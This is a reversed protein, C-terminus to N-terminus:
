VRHDQRLLTERARIAVLGASLVLVLAMAVFASAPSVFHYLSSLLLPGLAAGLGLSFSWMGIFAGRSSEPALDMAYTQATTLSFAEGIGLLVVACAVFLYVDGVSLAVAAACSCLLGPVLAHKRGWKDAIVGAPLAFFFTILAGLSLLFGVAAADGGLADPVHVPILTQVVGAQSMSFAITALSLVVFAPDKFPEAREKLTPKPEDSHSAPRDPKTERVMFLVVIVIVIKSVGNLLFVSSLGFVSALIGGAAPGAVFGLRTSMQRVALVRGRTENRTVDSLLVNSSTAWMAVGIQGIIELLFFTAYDGTFFQGVNTAGRITCSLIVLPKRGFKDTLFGTLPGAFIRPVANSALLLGVLFVNGTVAFAFLPRGLNQAGTGFGWTFFSFFIPSNSLNVIRSDSTRAM